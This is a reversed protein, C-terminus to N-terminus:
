CRRCTTQTKQRREGKGDDDDYVRKRKQAGGKTTKKRGRGGISFLLDFYLVINTLSVMQTKKPKNSPPDPLKFGLTRNVTQNTHKFIVM